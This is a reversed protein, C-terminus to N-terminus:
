SNYTKLIKRFLPIKAIPTRNKTHRLDGNNLWYDVWHGMNENWFISNFIKQRIQSARLFDEAINNEGVVKALFAIDLEM